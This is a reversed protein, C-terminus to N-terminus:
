LTLALFVKWQFPFWINQCQMANCLFLTARHHISSKQWCSIKIYVNLTIYVLSPSSQSSELIYHHIYRRLWHNQSNSIMFLMWFNECKATTNNVSIRWPPTKHAQHWSVSQKILFYKRPISKWKKVNDIRPFSKQCKDTKNNDSIRWSPNTALHWSM